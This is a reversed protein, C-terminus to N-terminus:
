ESTALCQQKWPASSADVSNIHDFTFILNDITFPSTVTQNSTSLGLSVPLYLCCLCVLPGHCTMMKMGYCKHHRYGDATEMVGVTTEKEQQM